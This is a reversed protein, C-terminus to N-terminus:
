QSSVTLSLNPCGVHLNDSNFTFKLVKFKPMRPKLLEGYLADFISVEEFHTTEALIWKNAYFRNCIYVAGVNGSISWSLM